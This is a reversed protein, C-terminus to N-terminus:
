WRCWIIVWSGYEYMMNYKIEQVPNYLESDEPLWMQKDKRTDRNVEETRVDPESEFWDILSKCMDASLANEFGRVFNRLMRKIWM